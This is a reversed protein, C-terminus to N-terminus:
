SVRHGVFFKLALRQIFIIIFCYNRKISPTRTNQQAGNSLRKDDEHTRHPRIICVQSLRWSM